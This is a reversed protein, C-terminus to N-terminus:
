DDGSYGNYGQYGTKYGYATPKTDRHYFKRYRESVEANATKRCYDAINSEDTALPDVKARMRRTHM